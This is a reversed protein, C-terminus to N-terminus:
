ACCSTTEDGLDVVLQFPLAFVCCSCLVVVNQACQRRSLLWLCCLLKWCICRINTNFDIRPLTTHSCGREIGIFYRHPCRPWHLLCLQGGGLHVVLLALGLLDGHAAAFTLGSWLRVHGLLGCCIRKVYRKFYKCRTACLQVHWNLLLGAQALNLMQVSIVSLQIRM